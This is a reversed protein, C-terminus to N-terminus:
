LFRDVMKSFPILQHFGPLVAAAAASLQEGSVPIELEVEVELGECRVRCIAPIQEAQFRLVVARQWALPEGKRIHRQHQRWLRWWDWWNRATLVVLRKVLHQTKWLPPVMEYWSGAVFLRVEHGAPTSRWRIRDGRDAILVLLGELVDWLPDPVGPRPVVGNWTIPLSAHMTEAALRTILKRRVWVLGQRM